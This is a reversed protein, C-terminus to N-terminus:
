LVKIWFFIILFFIYVFRRLFFYYSFTIRKKLNWKLNKKILFNLFDFSIWSNMKYYFKSYFLRFKSFSFSLLIGFLGKKFSLNLKNETVYRNMNSFYSSLLSRTANASAVLERRLPNILEMLTYNQKLKRAIYRALFKSTVSDNSIAFFNIDISNFKTMVFFIIKLYQNFYIFLNKNWKLWCIYFIFSSILISFRSSTGHTLLFIKFSRFLFYFQLFRSYINKQKLSVLLRMFSMFKIRGKGFFGHKKFKSFLKIFVNWRRLNLKKYNFLVKRKKGNTSFLLFLWFFRYFKFFKGKGFRRTKKKLSYFFNQRM